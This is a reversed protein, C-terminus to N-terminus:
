VVRAYVVLFILVMGCLLVVVNLQVSLRHLGKWERDLMEDPAKGSSEFMARRDRLENMHPMVAQRLWFDTAGMGAVLLLSLIAPWKSFARDFLLLGLCVISLAACIIGILYYKSFIRRILAAADEPKLTKFVTPAVAFSFFVISGIWVALTLLYLWKVGQTMATPAYGRGVTSTLVIEKVLAGGGSRKQRHALGPFKAAANQAGAPHEALVGVGERQNVVRYQHGDGAAVRFPGAGGRAFRM